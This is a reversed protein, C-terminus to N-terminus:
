RGAAVGAPATAGSTGSGGGAGGGSGPEGAAGIDRMHLGLRAFYVAGILTIPIFTLVHFGLAWSLAANGPVGYLELGLRAAVEFVGFFGPASPLAVGIAIIGQTLLAASFPADIGVARFGLWFAVANLLWHALTWLFVAVFRGPHRLVGLGQAFSELMARGRSEFRPAVRRAVLEYLALLRAPFFVIAYLVAVVVGLGIAGTVAAATVKARSDAGAGIAFRPDLMALLMLLLVVIADFARDV